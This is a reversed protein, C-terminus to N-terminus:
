LSQTGKSQPEETAICICQSHLYLRARETKEHSNPSPSYTCPFIPIRAVVFATLLLSKERHSGYTGHRGASM